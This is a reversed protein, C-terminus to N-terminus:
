FRTMSWEPSGNKNIHLRYGLTVMIVSVQEVTPKCTDELLEAIEFSTLNDPSEAAPVLPRYDQLFLAIAPASEFTNISCLANGIIAQNKTLYNTTEMKM